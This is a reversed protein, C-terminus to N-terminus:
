HGIRLGAEAASGTPTVQTVQLERGRTGVNLGAPLRFETSLEQLSGARDLEEMETRESLRCRGAISLVANNTVADRNKGAVFCVLVVLSRQELAGLREFLNENLSATDDTVAATRAEHPVPSTPAAPAPTPAANYGMQQSAWSLLGM